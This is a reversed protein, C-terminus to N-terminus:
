KLQLVIYGMSKVTQGNYDFDIDSYNSVINTGDSFTTRSVNETIFEHSEMFEYQLHRITEFEDFGEKIKTVSQILEENTECILDDNGMWNSGSERFKSYFYFIPRGGFEILKLRILPSKITYNITASYPNNLVIGNYVLQWFPVHREILPDLPMDPNHFSIYLGYDLNSICYDFGGESALGGFTKQADNFIKKTWRAYDEKTLSHETAYCTRPNITSFVDIYHLGRFGLAKLKEFDSQVFREYMCKPCTEYMNGGGWTTYTNLKGDKKRLLYGEDWLGGICSAHYADSNNTHCVIQFGETQAKEIAERLKTEGGLREDPPFIQPYRGDHGGVNWGVLCFEAENIGQRKFEEVIQKFRDFTVAVKMPPENEATQETVPSPVPKWAMRVRIEMSQAAYDLEQNNKVRDKLPVCVKRDLQYKRYIKAM